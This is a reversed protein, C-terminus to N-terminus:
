ADRRNDFKEFEKEFGIMFAKETEAWPTEDRSELRACPGDGCGETFVDPCTRTPMERCLNEM